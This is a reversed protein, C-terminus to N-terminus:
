LQGFASQENCCINGKVQQFFTHDDVGFGIVGNWFGSEDAPACSFTAYPQERYLVTVSTGCFAEQSDKADIISIRVDRMDPMDRGIATTELLPTLISILEEGSISRSTGSVGNDYTDGMLTGPIEQGEHKQLMCCAQLFAEHAADPLAAARQDSIPLVLVIEPLLSTRIHLGKEEEIWASVYLVSHDRLLLDLCMGRHDIQVLLGVTDLTDNVAQEWRPIDRNEMGLVSLLDRIAGEEGQSCSVSYQKAHAEGMSWVPVMLLVLILAAICRKM